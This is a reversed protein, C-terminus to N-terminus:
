TMGKPGFRMKRSSVESTARGATGKSSSFSRKAARMSCRPISILATSSVSYQRMGM